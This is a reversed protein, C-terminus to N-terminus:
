PIKRFTISRNADVHWVMQDAKENFTFTETTGDRDTHIVLSTADEKDVIYTAAPNRGAPTQIAVQNGLAIIETGAAFANAQIQVNPDVVDAKAGKWHGELKQSGPHKCAVTSATLLLGALALKRM